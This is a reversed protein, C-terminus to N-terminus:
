LGLQPQCSPDELENFNWGHRLAGHSPSSCAGEHRGPWCLHESDGFNRAPARSLTEPPLHALHLYVRGGNAGVGHAEGVEMTMARSVM